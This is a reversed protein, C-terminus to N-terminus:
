RRLYQLLQLARNLNGEIMDAIEMKSIQNQSTQNIKKVPTEEQEEEQEEEYDEEDMEPVEKKIKRKFVM